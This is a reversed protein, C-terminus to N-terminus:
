SVSGGLHGLVEIFKFSSFGPAGPHSLRNLMQSQGLDHDGPKHTQAGCRARHQCSLAQFRSRIRRRGRERDRGQECVTERERERERERLSLYVNFFYIFLLTSVM